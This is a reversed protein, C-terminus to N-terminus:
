KLWYAQPKGWGILTTHSWGTPSATNQGILVTGKPGILSHPNLMKMQMLISWDPVLVPVETWILWSGEPDLILSSQTEGPLAMFTNGRLLPFFVIASCLQQATKVASTNGTFLTEKKLVGWILSKQQHRIPALLDDTPM